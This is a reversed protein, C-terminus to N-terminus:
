LRGRRQKGVPARKGETTSVSVGINLGTLAQHKHTSHVWLESSGMGLPGPGVDLLSYEGSFPCFLSPWTCHPLSRLSAAAPRPHRTGLSPLLFLSQIERLAM